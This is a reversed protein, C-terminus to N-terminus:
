AVPLRNQMLEYAAQALFAPTRCGSLSLCLSLTLALLCALTLLFVSERDRERDGEKRSVVSLHTRSSVVKQRPRTLIKASWGCEIKIRLKSAAAAAAAAAYSGLM